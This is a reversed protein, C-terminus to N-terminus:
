ATKLSSTAQSVAHRVLEIDRRVHTELEFGEKPGGRYRSRYHASVLRDIAASAPGGSPSIALRQSALGGREAPTQGSVEPIRLPELVRHLVGYISQPDREYRRRKGIGGRVGRWWGKWSPRFRLLLLLAGIAVGGLAWIAIMWGRSSAKQSAESTQGGGLFSSLWQRGRALYRAYANNPGSSMLDQYWNEDTRQQGGDLVYDKWLVQAYDMAQRVQSSENALQSPTPDLMMWAGQGRAQGDLKADAPIQDPEIWAEVWAHADRQRVIYYQGLANYGSPHYGVVVRCPINWARLMMALAAAFYQCHGKRHNAVFEEIPDVSRNLRNGLNLTYRYGGDRALHDELARCIGVTTQQSPPMKAIVSGAERILRPFENRNLKLMWRKEAEFERVAFGDSVDAGTWSSQMGEHFTHTIFSYERFPNPQVTSTRALQSRNPWYTFREYSGDSYVPPVTFLPDQKPSELTVIVRVRDFGRRESEAAQHESALGSEIWPSSGEFARWVGQESAAGYVSVANARIYPPTALNYGGDDPAARRFAVRMVIEDSQLTEGMERLDLGSGLGTIAQPARLGASSVRPMSYLFAMAFAFVPFALGGVLMAASFRTAKGTRDLGHLRVRPASTVMKSRVDERIYGCLLLLAILGFLVYPVLLLGFGLADNLVAAVVLQLLCFVCIQEFTRLTKRQWLLVMQAGALLGAVTQLQASDTGYVYRMSSYVAMAVLALNGLLPHLRVWGLLDNILLAALTVAVGIAGLQGMGPAAGLLLFGLIALTALTLARFTAVSWLSPNAVRTGEREGAQSVAGITRGSRGAALARSSGGMSVGKEDTAVSM